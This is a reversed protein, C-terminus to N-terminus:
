LYGCEVIMYFNAVDPTSFISQLAPYNLRSQKHKGAIVRQPTSESNIHMNYM